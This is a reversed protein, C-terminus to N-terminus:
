SLSFMRSFTSVPFLFATMLVSFIYKYLIFFIIDVVYVVEDEDEDKDEDELEHAAKSAALLAPAAMLEAMRKRTTERKYPKVPESKPMSDGHCCPDPAVSAQIHRRAMATPPIDNPIIYMLFVDAEVAHLSTLTPLLARYESKSRAGKM